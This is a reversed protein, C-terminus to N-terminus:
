LLRYNGLKSDPTGRRSILKRKGDREAKRQRLAVAKSWPSWAFAWLESHKGRCCGEESEGHKKKGRNESLDGSADRPAKFGFYLDAELAVGRIAECFTGCDGKRVGGFLGGECETIGRTDICSNGKRDDHDVGGVFVVEDHV